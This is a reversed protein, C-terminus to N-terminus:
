SFKFAVYQLQPVIGSSETAPTAPNLPTMPNVSSASAAMGGMSMSPLNMSAVSGTHAPPASFMNGIHGM